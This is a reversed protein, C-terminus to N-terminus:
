QRGLIFGVMEEPIFIMPHQENPIATGPNQAAQKTKAEVIERSLQLAKESTFSELSEATITSSTAAKGSLGEAFSYSFIGRLM